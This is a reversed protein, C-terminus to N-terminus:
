FAFTGTQCFFNLNGLKKILLRKCTSPGTIEIKWKTLYSPLSAESAQRAGIAKPWRVGSPM